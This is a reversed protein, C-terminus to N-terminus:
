TIPAEADDLFTWRTPSGTFDSESLGFVRSPVLRFLANQRYFEVPYDVEYKGNVAAVFEAVADDSHVREARAEVVVPEQANDTTASCRPDRDLNRAKRSGNSCSFWLADVRWAGWVPTVHPRGDPQSTAIWYDHSSELREIAWAWPLLGTGEGADRVGYGPMYPRSAQVRVQGGQSVSESMM